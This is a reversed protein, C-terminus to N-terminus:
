YSSQLQTMLAGPVIHSRSFLPLIRTELAKHQPQKILDM